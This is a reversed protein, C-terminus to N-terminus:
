KLSFEQLDPAEGPECGLWEFWERAHFVARRKPWQTIVITNVIEVTFYNNGMRILRVMPFGVEVVQAPFPLPFDALTIFLLGTPIGPRLQTLFILPERLSAAAFGDLTLSVVTRPILWAGLGPALDKPYTITLGLLSTLSPLVGWISADFGTSRLVFEGGGVTLTLTKLDRRNRLFDAISPLLDRDNLQRSVSGAICLTFHRLFPLSTSLSRFYPSLACDLLVTLNLCELQRGHTLLDPILQSSTVPLQGMYGIHTLNRISISSTAPFTSTPNEICLTRLTGRNQSLFESLSESESSASSSPDSGSASSPVYSAEYAFHALHQFTLTSLGLSGNPIQLTLGSLRPHSTQLIQLIPITGDIPATIHVNRLNILKPLANSLIGIQFSSWGDKDSRFSFIRLTRVVSAFSADTIVRTLIDATRQAHRNSQDRINASLLPTRWSDAEEEAIDSFDSFHLDLKRFLLQSAIRSLSNPVFLLTKLDRRPLLSAIERWIEVSFQGKIIPKPALLNVSRKHLLATAEPNDPEAVLAAQLDEQAGFISGTNLRARARLIRAKATNEPSLSTVQLCSQIANEFVIRSRGEYVLSSLAYLLLDAKQNDSLCLSVDRISADLIKPNFINM